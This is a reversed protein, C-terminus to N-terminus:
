RLFAPSFKRSCKADGKREDPLSVAGHRLRDNFELIGCRAFNTFGYKSLGRAGGNKRVTPSPACGGRALQKALCESRNDTRDCVIPKGAEPTEPKRAIEIVPVPLGGAAAQPDPRPDRSSESFLFTRGAKALAESLRIRLSAPVRGKSVCAAGTMLSTRGGGGQVDADRGSGPLFSSRMIGTAKRGSARCTCRKGAM